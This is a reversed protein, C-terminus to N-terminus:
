QRSPIPGTSFRGLRNPLHRSTVSRFMKPVCSNMRKQRRAPNSGYRAAFTPVPVGSSNWDHTSYEFAGAPVSDM